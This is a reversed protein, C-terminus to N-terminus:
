EPEIAPVEELGMSEDPAQAEGVEDLGMDEPKFMAPNDLFRQLTKKDIAM